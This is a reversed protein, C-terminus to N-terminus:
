VILIPNHPVKFGFETSDHGSSGIIPINKPTNNHLSGPLVVVKRAENHSLDNNTESPRTNQRKRKKKQHGKGAALLYGALM